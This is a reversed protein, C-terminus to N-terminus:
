FGGFGLATALDIEDYVRDVYVFKPHRTPVQKGDATVIKDEYRVWAVEWAKKAVGAIDGITMGTQNAAMAFQYNVNAEADTGDSGRAGLFLVEGPAYTLFPTSNSTGTISSLFKAQPLTIVGLPHRYNVNIKMAPIIIETGKVENGDVAIAGKQDPASTAPFRAVEAKAQTIHITGGTTDFDWSFDGTQIKRKGYPVDVMWQNYAAKSIQLDQRYLIGYITAIIAPTSALAYANATNQDPVGIIKFRRTETPEAGTTQIGDPLSIIKPTM